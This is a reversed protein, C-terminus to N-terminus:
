DRVSASDLWEDCHCSMNHIFQLSTMQEVDRNRKRGNLLNSYCRCALPPNERDGAALESAVSELPFNQWMSTRVQQEYPSVTRRVLIDPHTQERIVFREDKHCVSSHAM